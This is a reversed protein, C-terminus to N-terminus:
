YLLLPLEYQRSGDKASSEFLILHLTTNPNRKAATITFNFDGWEPAGANTMTYGRKLEDHGDEVVWNFNAEFIQGKGRVVFTSDGTREVTVDKFRENSYVKPSIGSPDTYVTDKKDTRTNDIATTDLENVTTDAPDKSKCAFFVWLSILMLMFKM